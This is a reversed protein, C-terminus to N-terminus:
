IERRRADQGLGDHGTPLRLGEGDEPTIIRAQELAYRALHPQETRVALRGLRQWVLADDEVVQLSDLYREIASHLSGRKTELEALNKLAIYRLHLSPQSSLEVGVRAPLAGAILRQELLQRYAAAAEEGRGEAQMALATKYLEGNAAEQAEVGPSRSRIPAAGHPQEIDVFSIM